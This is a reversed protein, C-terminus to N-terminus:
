NLHEQTMTTLIHIMIRRSGTHGNQAPNPSKTKLTPELTAIQVREPDSQTSSLSRNMPLSM